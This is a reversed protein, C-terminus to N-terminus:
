QKLNMRISEIDHKKTKASAKNVILRASVNFLTDLVILKNKKLSNGTDSLDIIMESLGIAPAMEVAGHLKIVHVQQSKDSFYKKALSPYKTAIRLVNGSKLPKKPGALVMKCCGIHLDELEYIGCSENEILIDKGVIGIDALGIEVLTAVDMSRVIVLQYPKHPHNIVLNNINLDKDLLSFGISSLYSRAASFIRGKSVVITLRNKM